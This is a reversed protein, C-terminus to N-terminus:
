ERPLKNNKDSDGKNSKRKGDDERKLDSYLLYFGIEGSEVFNDWCLDLLDKNWNERM